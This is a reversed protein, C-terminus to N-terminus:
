NIASCGRPLLREARFGGDEPSKSDLNLSFEACSGREARDPSVKRTSNMSEDEVQVGSSPNNLILSKKWLVEM